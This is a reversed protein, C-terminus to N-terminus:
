KSGRRSPKRAASASVTTESESVEDATTEAVGSGGATTTTEMPGSRQASSEEPTEVPEGRVLEARVGDAWATAEAGPLDVVEGPTYSRDTGGVAQLFKVRAM